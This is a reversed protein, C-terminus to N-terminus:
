NQPVFPEPYYYPQWAVVVERWADEHPWDPCWSMRETTVSGDRHRMAVWYDGPKDPLREEVSIWGKTEDNGITMNICDNWGIRYSPVPGSQPYGGCVEFREPLPRLPCWDQKISVDEMFEESIGCFQLVHECWKCDRCKGPMDMILVAKKM